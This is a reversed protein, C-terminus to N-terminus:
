KGRVLHLSTHLISMSGLLSRKTRGLMQWRSFDDSLVESTLTATVSWRSGRVRVKVGAGVGVRIRVRVLHSVVQAIPLGLASNAPSLQLRGLLVAVLETLGVARRLM